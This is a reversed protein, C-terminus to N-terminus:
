LSFKMQTEWWEETVTYSIVRRKSHSIFVQPAILLCFPGQGSRISDEKGKRIEHGLDLTLQDSFSAGLRGAPETPHSLLMQHFVALSLLVVVGSVLGRPVQSCVASAFHLGDMQSTGVHLLALGLSESLLRVGM